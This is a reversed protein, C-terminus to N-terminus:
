QRWWKSCAKLCAPPEYLPADADRTVAAAEREVDVAVGVRGGEAPEVLTGVGAGVPDEVVVCFTIAPRTALPLVKAGDRACERGTASVVVGVRGEETSGLTGRGMGAALAAVTPTIDSSLTFSLTLAGIFSSSSSSTASGSKRTTMEM